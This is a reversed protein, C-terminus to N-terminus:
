SEATTPFSPSVHLCRGSQTGPFSGWVTMPSSVEQTGSGSHVYPRLSIYHSRHATLVAQTVQAQLIM